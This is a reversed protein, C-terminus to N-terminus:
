KPLEPFGSLHGIARLVLLLFKSVSEPPFASALFFTLMVGFFVGRWDTRGLRAAADILYDIKANLVRMQEASLSYTRGVYEAMEQLRGAIVEQEDLTFPANETAKNSADGLLEAERQLEAWLDPTELDHKVEELWRSVRTMLTQWSYVEYPWPPADGVLYRGGYHGPNGGIIFYSASWKHKIRVEADGDDLDFDKPDLGVGQIAEFIQNKQWKQLQPPPPM